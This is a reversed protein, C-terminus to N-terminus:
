GYMLNQKEFVVTVKKEDGEIRGEMCRGKKGRREGWGVGERRM